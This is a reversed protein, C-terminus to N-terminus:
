ISAHIPTTKLRLHQPLKGEIVAMIESCVSLAIESSTEAGLDLGTPGYINKLQVDTFHIGNDALDNFLRERKAAPGLLGIYPVNANALESLMAFDYNYNHTMLVVATRDDFLLQQMAEAPKGLVIKNAQGFRLSNAHTPRGDVVTTSWGILRAMNELPMIDNGAGVIILSIAPIIYEVFLAQNGEDTAIILHESKKNALVNDLIPSLQKIYKEQIAQTLLTGWHIGHDPHYGTVLISPERSDIIKKFSEILLDNSKDIPEFLIRVIGNCGLQVGLKADDEDTTDYVVLKKKGQTIALAAKRLADGELCGGSIAGTFQGDETVLMRAGPRRYSSGDVSVVTALAMKLGSLKAREYAKVIDGLEKM